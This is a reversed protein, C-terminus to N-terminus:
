ASAEPFAMAALMLRTSEIFRRFDGEDVPVLLYDPLPAHALKALFLSIMAPDLGGEKTKAEAFHERISLGRKSLFYLDVVDKMECRGILTCIKNVGIERLTDVRIGGFEEKEQDLQRTQEVVFDLVEKESGRQLSYRHFYPAATISELRAGIAAAVGTVTNGLVMWNVPRGTFFDLDYSLRHELYFIGLASGGSLYFDRCAAFFGKLFDRKLPTIAKSNEWSM